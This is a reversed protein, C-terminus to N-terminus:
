KEGQLKKINALRQFRQKMVRRPFFFREIKYIINRVKTTITVNKEVSSLEYKKESIKVLIDPPTRITKQAEPDFRGLESHYQNIDETINVNYKNM